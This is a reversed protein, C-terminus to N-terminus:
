AAELEEVFALRYGNPDLIEFVRTGDSERTLASAVEVREKLAAYLGDIGRVTVHIAAGQPPSPDGLRVAIRIDDRWLLAADVPSESLFDVNFALRSRYWGATSAVDSAYLVPMVAVLDISTLRPRM